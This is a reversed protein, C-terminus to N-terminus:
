QNLILKKLLEIDIIAKGLLKENEEYTSPISGLKREINDLKMSLHAFEHKQADEIKELKDLIMELMNKGHEM